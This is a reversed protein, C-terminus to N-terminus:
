KNINVNPFAEDMLRVPKEFIKFKELMFFDSIYRGMTRTDMSYIRTLEDYIAFMHANDRKSLKRDMIKMSLIRCYAAYTTFDTEEFTKLTVECISMYVYNDFKGSQM